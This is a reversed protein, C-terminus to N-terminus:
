CHCIAYDSSEIMLGDADPYFRFYMERVYGLMFELSEDRAPCLNYGWCGIGFPATPKGDKGVAKLEPHELPWQNVGDYGFPTFGLLVRIGRAHAHDILQRVFDRRVNEHEANYKWTVPYQESRFAGGMWLLLLNGGDDRIGDVVRRWDALDYTPMRMFTIYYGRESFPGRPVPEAGAAPGTCIMGAALALLPIWRNMTM